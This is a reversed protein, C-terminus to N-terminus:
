LFVNLSRYSRSKGHQQLVLPRLPWYVPHPWSVRYFLAAVTKIATAAAGSFLATVAMNRGPMARVDSVKVSGSGLTGKFHFHHGGYIAWVLCQNYDASLVWVTM